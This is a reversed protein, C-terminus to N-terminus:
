CICPLKNSLHQTATLLDMTVVTFSKLHLVIYVDHVGTDLTQDGDAIMHGTFISINCMEYVLTSIYIRLSQVM